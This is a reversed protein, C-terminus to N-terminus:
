NETSVTSLSWSWQRHETSKRQSWVGCCCRWGLCLM